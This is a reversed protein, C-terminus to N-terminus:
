CIVGFAVLCEDIKKLELYLNKIDNFMKNIPSKHKLTIGIPKTTVSNPLYSKELQNWAFLDNCQHSYVNRKEALKDWFAKVSKLSAILKKDYRESKKMVDYIKCLYGWRPPRAQKFHIFYLLATTRELGQYICEVCLSYHHMFYSARLMYEKGCVEEIGDLYFLLYGLEFQTHHVSIYLASLHESLPDNFRNKHYKQFDEAALREVGHKKFLELLYNYFKKRDIM